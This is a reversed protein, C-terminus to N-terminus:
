YVSFFIDSVSASTAAFFTSLRLHHNDSDLRSQKRSVINSGLQPKLNWLLQKEPYFMHQKLLFCKLNADWHVRISSPVDFMPKNLPLYLLRVSFNTGLEEVFLMNMPKTYSIWVSLQEFLQLTALICRDSFVCQNYLNRDKSCNIYNNWKGIRNPFSLCWKLFFNRTLGFILSFKDAPVWVRAWGLWVLAHAGCM